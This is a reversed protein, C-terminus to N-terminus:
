NGSLRTADDRNKTFAYMEAEDKSMGQKRAQDIAEIMRRYDRPVVKVFKASAADWDRLIIDAKKSGTYDLHKKVMDKIEQQEKKDLDRELDAMSKNMLDEFGNDEDFIYAVGGSMGAGFNLGVKGLIVIKGGTMYECGHAGVGEVVAKVGSNRVCFREGAVGSIYAEGGTAGYFAVNGILINEDAKGTFDESKRVIIKGGSLGKGMYDNADGVLRITVGKPVFAGLSQGASGTFTLNITDEPLGEGGYKKSIVSGLVTGTTRNLNVINLSAEMPTKTEIASNCLAILINMDSTQYIKHKQKVTRYRDEVRESFPRYLLPSVDITKAKWHDIKDKRKLLDTRGVMEDVTRVGIRAMTERLNEAIFRMFNVVHEPEGKFLKRLEENQTAVGVPCTDLNCVRMMICGMTILPLTAFGFEEAGLLAAIAVDRGTLLKGDTELKVRNRLKNIILTQNTESLGLEWPLGTHRVSTRPAAGTGGDYGSILIVDAYGKAVGAAITGVGVESVLKVNIDADPNSCKLDYILQALDEISYIDHHPPPSILGVGSTSGRTKAIWPYVKEGPLQGGEGPKAGQAMKIQIEKATTLYHSTVGFRGSAVQKIASCRSDGNEDPTFREVREGGEGSNSKGGIRNMAIAMCEHAELSISGYSMAGTKFRKCISEVSEIEDIPLPKDAYRFDLLSRITSYDDNRDNLIRAFERYKDYDGDWCSQQLTIITEPNISHYEGEKRWNFVGGASLVLDKGEFSAFAEQHRMLAENTIIDLEIGGIRSATGKFYKEIVTQSIGVAEFIQAGRYSQITSIGMKSLVKIIGKVLAYSYREQAELVSYGTVMGSTIMDEITAIALYPNISDAGYGLLLCFHHVERPEGSEVIISAKTRTGNEVLHHHLAACALLAPIPAKDESVGRDSLIILNYGEEIAKDAEKFIRNLRGKLGVSGREIDFLMSITTQKFGEKDIDRIAALENNWMIPTDCSIRRCAKPSHELLNEMSGLWTKSGTVIEERISDIPPNTVQAFLQKFYNYLLQGKNSLVALAADNGMAGVPDIGRVVMPELVRQLDEFTYGFATQFVKLDIDDKPVETKTAKLDSLKIENKKLWDQYPYAKIFKDKLEADSIIEKKVTDVLLMRGPHLREKVAVDEEKIELVGVESALVLMGDKTVYYRSPRLGNRDLSACVSIGDTAVIAAPGDWPEMLCSNYRYFAKKDEKMYPNKEWPEPIMMMMVESLPRGALYMFELCNDFMASDSGEEDIIPMLNDVDFNFVDTKISAERAKMGNVNGRLTNIEGNHIAMRYPHAREWSPFTNTSFRSHVLALASELRNDNLDLFFKKMQYPILMGKYVITRCSMSAIYFYESGVLDVSLMKKEVMRRIVFLKREFDLEEEIDDSKRIFIQEVFPMSVRAAQGLDEGNIPSVRWGLVEQGQAEVEDEVIKKLKARKQEDHCFYIMGVGYEGLKPLEFGNIVAQARFFKDPIQFLIGAGDGTNEENGRAGRHDLNNLVTLAQNIIENTREGGINVVAGIGCADHEFKPDYLGQKVPLNM